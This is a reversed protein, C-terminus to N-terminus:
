LPTNRPPEPLSFYFTAGAGPQSEAWARGGHRIVIRRVNALGIGTGEFEEARHLRQFVGFLKDVYMMEFGVGNDRVFIVPHGPTDKKCGIEIVAPDRPRTYKIANALLNVFVQRLMSRDAHVVPLPEKHWVINRSQFEPRLSHLVEELLNTLDVRGIRMETRGMRAFVLLDDILQGLQKASDSITTLYGRGRESVTQGDSKILLGVFGDIHRLPARLDHSVSYSFAELEKNAAELQATREAVRVELEQNLQRIEEEVLKRRTIDARIAVYQYPKGDPKLFPVITTDVWYISGDKARNKIEGKWVHGRAITTWLDRIFETPHHGSNIIRHDQGLLEERSYKSIACFKDNVYTIRGQPDTIAVIAHEDLAAKHAHIQTLLQNFADTLLGLEDDSQKIARVSFDHHDSIARATETLALIPESIQKQLARSLLYAILLVVAMVAVAIQLSGWLFERTVARTDFRLYLTGLRRDRVTVAHHSALGSEIFRHGLPGPAAPLAKPSLGAPYHAFLRDNSDYLAAVAVNREARVASLIERADDPNDFALAATSNAALIDGLSTIQRVLLQRFTVYEYIFFSGRMLLMVVGSTLLIILMLKRQIPMDRLNM